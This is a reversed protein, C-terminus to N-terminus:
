GIGGSEAHFGFLSRVVCQAGGGRCALKKMRRDRRAAFADWVSMRLRVTAEALMRTEKGKYAVLVVDHSCARGKRKTIARIVWLRQTHEEVWVQGRAMLVRGRPGYIPAPHGGPKRGLLDV